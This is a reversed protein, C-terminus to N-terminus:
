FFPGKTTFSGVGGGVISPSHYYSMNKRGSKKTKADKKNEVQKAQETAYIIQVFKLTIDVADFKDTTEDRDMSVLMLNDIIEGRTYVSYFTYTRDNYIRLLTGWVSQWNKAKVIAKMTVELPMIVKNDFVVHGTEVPSKIANASRTVTVNTISFIEGGTSDKTDLSDLGPINVWYFGDARNPNTAM